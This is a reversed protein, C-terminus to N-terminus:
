YYISKISQLIRWFCSRLLWWKISLQQQGVKKETATIQQYTDFMKYFTIKTKGGGRTSSIVQGNDPSSQAKNSHKKEGAQRREHKFPHQEISKQQFCGAHLNSCILHWLVPKEINEPLKATSFICLCWSSNLHDTPLRGGNSNGKGLRWSAIPGKLNESQWDEAHLQSLHGRFMVPYFLSFQLSTLLLGM